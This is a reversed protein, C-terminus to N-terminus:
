STSGAHATSGSPESYPPDSGRTERASAISEALDLLRRVAHEGGQRVALALRLPEPAEALVAAVLAEGLGPPLPAGFASLEIIARAYAASVGNPEADTSANGAPQGRPESGKPLM